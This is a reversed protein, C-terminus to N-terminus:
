STLLRICADEDTSNFPLTHTRCENETVQWDEVKWM